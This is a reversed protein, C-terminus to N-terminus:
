LRGFAPSGSFCPLWKELAKSFLELGDDFPTHSVDKRKDKILDSVHAMGKYIVGFVDTGSPAKGCEPVDQVTKRMPAGISDEESAVTIGRWPDFEGNAFMVNSPRMDWGGYRLVSDVNSKSPFVGPDFTPFLSEIGKQRGTKVNVFRSVLNWPKGPQSGISNGIETLAQWQWSHHDAFSQGFAKEARNPELM